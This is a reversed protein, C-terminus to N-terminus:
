CGAPKSSAAPALSALMGYYMWFFFLPVLWYLADYSVMAVAIGLLAALLAFYLASDQPARSPLYLFINKLLFYVCLIFSLFGLLGSEALIMLYMNDPIRFHINNEKVRSYENFRSRFNELGLGLVPYDKLMKLAIELRAMRFTWAPKDTLGQPGLRWFKNQYFGASATISLILLLSLAFFVAKKSRRLFYFVASCAAALFAVRTLTFLMALAIVTIAALWAAKRWGGQAKVFFHYALPLCAVLYTALVVASEQTAVPRHQGAYYGYYKCCMIRECIFNRGTAWEWIAYAAVAVACGAVLKCIKEKQALSPFGSKFLYYTPLIILAYRPYQYLVARRDQAIFIGATIVALYLWLFRDQTGSFIDRVGRGRSFLASICVLFLGCLFWIRYKEYLPEFFSLWLILILLIVRSAAAALAIRRVAGRSLKAGGASNVSPDTLNQKKRM